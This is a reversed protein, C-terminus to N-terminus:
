LKKFVLERKLYGTEILIKELNNKDVVSPTLLISPVDIKKNNLKQKTEASIDQGNALKFAVDM